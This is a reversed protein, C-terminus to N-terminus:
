MGHSPRHGHTEHNIVLKKRLWGLTLDFSVDGRVESRLLDPSPNNKYSGNQEKQCETQKVDVYLFSKVHPRSNPLRNIMDELVCKNM